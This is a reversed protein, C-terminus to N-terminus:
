TAVALARIDPAQALEAAVDVAVAPHKIRETGIRQQALRDAVM